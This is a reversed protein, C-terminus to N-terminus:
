RVCPFGPPCTVHTGTLRTGDIILTNNLPTIGDFRDLVPNDYDVGFLQAEEDTELTFRSDHLYKYQNILGPNRTVVGNLMFGIFLGARGNGALDNDDFHVRSTGTFMRPNARTAFAGEVLVGYEGNNRFSNSRVTATIHATMPQNDTTDYFSDGSGFSELRMGFRPSVSMDNGIVALTLTNPVQEPHQAPDYLTQITKVNPAQVRAKVAGAGLAVVGQQLNGMFRNAKVQVRAPYIRSGGNIALGDNIDYGFHGEAKGSAMRTYAGIQLRRMVNDQLSFNNARDVFIALGGTTVDVARGDFIFGRISVDTVRDAPSDRTPAIVLLVQGVTLPRVPMIVTETGPEVCPAPVLDSGCNGPLGDEDEILQTSGRLEFNSMNLYIPFDEVYEGPAVRVIIRNRREARIERAGQVARTITQYPAGRSGDGGPGAQSDVFVTSRRHGRGEGLGDRNGASQAWTHTGITAVLVLTSASIITVRM